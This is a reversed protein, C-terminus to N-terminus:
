CIAAAHKEAAGLVSVKERRPVPTRSRHPPPLPRNLTQCVTPDQSLLVMARNETNGEPSRPPTTHSKHKQNGPQVSRM